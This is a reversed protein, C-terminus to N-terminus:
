APMMLPTDAFISFSTRQAPPCRALLLIRGFLSKRRNRTHPHNGAAVPISLTVRWM